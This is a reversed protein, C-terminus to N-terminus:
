FKTISKLKSSISVANGTFTKKIEPCSPPSKLPLYIVIGETDKGRRGARGAMQLYETALNRFGNVNGDYKSLETFIVNRTPM